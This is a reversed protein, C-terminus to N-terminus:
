RRCSLRTPLARSAKGAWGSRGYATTAAACAIRWRACCTSAVTGILHELDALAEPEHRGTRLYADARQLRAEDRNALAIARNFGAIAEELRGLELLMQGGATLLDARLHAEAHGRALDGHLDRHLELAEELLPLAQDLQQLGYRAWGRFMLLEPHHEPPALKFAAQFAELSAKSEGRAGLCSGLVSRAQWENPDLRLASLADAEAGALDEQSLRALSRRRYIVALDPDLDLAQTCIAELAPWDRAKNLEAAKALLAATDPSTDRTTPSAGSRANLIAAAGGLGVVVCIAAAWPAKNPKRPHARGAPTTWPELAQGLAAASPPREDPEKALCRLVLADLGPPIGGRRNSPPLPDEEFVANLTNLPTAGKFPPRGTLLAYLTAGLGYVDSRPGVRAKDGAAQEPPMYAPTGMLEGTRTLSAQSLQKEAPVLKGLGFDTLRLRGRADVVVNSPKLDRHLVGRQHAHEVAKCLVILVRAAKDVPPPGERSLRAQLTEGEVWEMVLAQRGAADTFADRFGVVGPHDLQALARAEQEFRADAEYPLKIAVQKGSDPDEARYVVGM